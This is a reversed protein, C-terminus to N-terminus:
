ACTGWTLLGEHVKQKNEPLDDDPKGDIERKDHDAFFLFDDVIVDRESVLCRFNIRTTPNTTAFNPIPGEFVVFVSSVTLILLAAVIAIIFNKM